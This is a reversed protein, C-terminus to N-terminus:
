RITKSSTNSSDSESGTTTYAKVAFYWTGATLNEVVYSSVSPNSVQISRTLSGASTGYNIRFGALNTLATGNTNRTPPVWSLTAAGTAGGAAVVTVAFAPLSASAKGDSVRISVNSTTGVNAATPTGSLRGTSTSFTAWGPKNTISFTLPDNNADSATPLFSYATSATVSTPPTGSIKPATNTGSGSSTVTITFYPRLTTGSTGDSAVIRIWNGTGVHSASPTGSLTGTTRSFSAWAPKNYVSFTLTKGEPDRATPTFTYTRGVAVSTAPTGTITPSKNANPAVTVSFAPLSATSTGDTVSIVVGSWIRAHESLPTGYLRGTSADFAAWGPKNTVRFTLRNGDADTATPTFSYANGVTGRLVPSGSIRPAAAEAGVSFLVCLAIFALAFPLRVRFANKHRMIGWKSALWSLEEGSGGTQKELAAPTREPALLGCAETHDM